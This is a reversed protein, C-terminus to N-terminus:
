EIEILNMIRLQLLFACAWGMVAVWNQMFICMFCNLLYIIAIFIEFKKM